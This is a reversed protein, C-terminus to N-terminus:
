LKRPSYFFQDKRQLRFNKKREGKVSFEPGPDCSFSVSWLLMLHSSYNPLFNYYSMETKYQRRSWRCSGGPTVPHASSLLLGGSGFSQRLKLFLLFFLYIIIIPQHNSRWRSSVESLGVVTCLTLIVIMASVLILQKLTLVLTMHLIIINSGPKRLVHHQNEKKNADEGCQDCDVSGCAVPSNQLARM